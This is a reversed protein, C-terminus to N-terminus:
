TVVEAVEAIVLQGGLRGLELLQHPPDALDLQQAALRTVHLHQGLLHRNGCRRPARRDGGPVKGLTVHEGGLIHPEQARRARDPRSM